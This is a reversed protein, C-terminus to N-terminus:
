ISANQFCGAETHFILHGAIGQLRLNTGVAAELQTLVRVRLKNHNLTQAVALCRMGLDQLSRIPSNM